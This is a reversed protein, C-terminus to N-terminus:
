DRLFYRDPDFMRLTALDRDDPLPFKKIDDIVRLDWGCQERIERVAMNKDKPLQDQYNEIDNFPITLDTEPINGELPIHVNILTIEEESIVSELEEVSVMEYGKGASEASGSLITDPTLNPLYTCSPLLVVVILAFM